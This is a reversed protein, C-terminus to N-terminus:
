GFRIVFFLIASVVFFAMAIWHWIVIARSPAYQRMVDESLLARYNFWALAPAVVFGASAAFDIFRRFDGLFIMLVLSALVVQGVLFLRYMRRENDASDVLEHYIRETMRPVADLIAVLTSWIVAVGGLAIVPYVWEGSLETFMSFLLGAFEAASAPAEAGSRYLVATGLVVFCLALVLTLLWGVNLDFVARARTYDGNTAHVKERVWVSHYATGSVPLPMLGTLAILFAVTTMDLQFPAFVSHESAALRPFAMLTAIVTIISFAVVMIKMLREVRVYSGNILILATTVIVAIPVAPGTMTTGLINQLIGSTVLAVATTGVLMEILMTFVLWGLATKGQAAYAEVISKGTISAYEAAFRFTPYKLVVILVIALTLTMGYNAGARTSQVLHSVGVATAAIMIGPGFRSFRDTVTHGPSLRTPSSM